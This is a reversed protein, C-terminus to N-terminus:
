AWPARHVGVSLALGLVSPYKEWITYSDLGDINRKLLKDLSLEMGVRTADESVLGKRLFDNSAFMFHEQVRLRWRLEKLFEGIKNIEYEPESARLVKIDLVIRWLRRDSESGRFAKDCSAGTRFVEEFARTIKATQHGSLTKIVQPQREPM